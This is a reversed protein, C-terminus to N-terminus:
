FRVRPNSCRLSSYIPNTCQNNVQKVIVPKMISHGKTVSFIPKSYQRTLSACWDKSDLTTFLTRQANTQPKYVYMKEGWGHIVNHFTSSPSQCPLSGQWNEM